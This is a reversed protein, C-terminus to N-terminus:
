FGATLTLSVCGVTVDFDHGCVLELQRRRSRGARSTRVQFVIGLRVSASCAQARPAWSTLLRYGGVKIRRYPLFPSGTVVRRSISFATHCESNSGTALSITSANADLASLSVAITGGSNVGLRVVSCVIVPSDRDAIASHNFARSSAPQIFRVRGGTPERVCRV